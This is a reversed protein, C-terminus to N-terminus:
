PLTPLTIGWLEQGADQRIQGQDLGDARLTSREAADARTGTVNYESGAGTLNALNLTDLTPYHGTAALIALWEDLNV